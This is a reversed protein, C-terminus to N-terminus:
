LVPRSLTGSFRSGCAISSFHCSVRSKSHTFEMFGKFVIWKFAHRINAIVNNGEGIVYIYFQQLLNFNHRLELHITTSSPEDEGVIKPSQCHVFVSWLMRSMHKSKMSCTIISYSRQEIRNAKFCSYICLLSVDYEPGNEYQSPLPTRVHLEEDQYM